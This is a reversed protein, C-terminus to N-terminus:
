HSGSTMAMARMYRAAFSLLNSTFSQSPLVGLCLYTCGLITNSLSCLYTGFVISLPGLKYGEKGRCVNTPGTHSTGPFLSGLLYRDDPLATGQKQKNEKFTM